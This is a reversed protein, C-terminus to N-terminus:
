YSLYKCFTMSVGSSGDMTNAFVNCFAPKLTVTTDARFGYVMNQIQFTDKEQQGNVQMIDLMRMYKSSKNTQVLLLLRLYDEYTMGQESEMAAEKNSDNLSKKNAALQAINSFRLQWNSKTKTLEMRKGQYLSQLDYIAEAYSVCALLLYQVLKIIAPNGTVGALAAALTEASAMLETDTLAYTFNIPFRIALLRYIINKVNKYDSNKGAIIYETEMEIGPLKSQATSTAKETNINQLSDIGSLKTQSASTSSMNKQAKKDATDEELQQEVNHTANGFHEMIYQLVLTEAIIENTLSSTDCKYELRSTIEEATEFSVAEEDPEEFNDEAEGQTNMSNSPFQEMAYEAKSIDKRGTVLEVIGFQLINKLTDRPDEIEQSQEADSQEANGNAHQTAKTQSEQAAKSQANQEAKMWSEQDTKSQADQKAQSEQAAKSQTDQQAKTQSEQMAKAQANQVAKVQSEQNEDSSIDPEDSQQEKQAEEKVQQESQMVKEKAADVESPNATGATIDTLKAVADEGIQYKMYQVIQHKLVQGEEDSLYTIDDLVTSDVLYNYFAANGSKDPNLNDLLYEQFQYNIAMANDTGYSQDVAFIHYREWLFPNYDALVSEGASITCKVARGKGLYIHLGETCTLLFVMIVTLLLSLFVTIQGSLSQKQM